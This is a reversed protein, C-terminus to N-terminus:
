YNRIEDYLNNYLNVDGYDGSLIMRDSAIGSEVLQRYVAKQTQYSVGLIIKTHSNIYRRYDQVPIEYLCDKNEERDNVLFAEIKKAYGHHQLVQYLREAIRGAGYILVHDCINLDRIFKQGPRETANTKQEKAETVSLKDMNRMVCDMLKPYRKMVARFQKDNGGEQNHQQYLGNDAHEWIPRDMYRRGTFVTPADILWQMVKIWIDDAYKCENMFIEPCFMDECWQLPPYLSGGCGTLFLDHRPIDRLEKYEGYWEEYPAISNGDWTIRHTRRAIVCGPNRKHGELLEEIMTPSYEVDDDIVIVLDEPYEQLAYYYKKHSRLDGKCWRIEFGQQEYASLDEGTEKNNFQEEALYLLVKDPKITQGLISDLVKDITHMRAPYSTFSVIVSM